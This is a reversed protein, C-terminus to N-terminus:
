RPRGELRVQRLAGRWMRHVRALAQSVSISAPYAPAPLGALPVPGSRPPAAWPTLVRPDWRLPGPQALRM